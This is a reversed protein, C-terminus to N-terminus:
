TQGFALSIPVFPFRFAKAQIVFCGDGGLSSFHSPLRELPGSLAWVSATQLPLQLTWHWAQGPGRAEPVYTLNRLRGAAQAAELVPQGPGPLHYGSPRLASM